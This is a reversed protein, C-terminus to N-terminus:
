EMPRWGVTGVVYQGMVMQACQSNPFSIALGVLDRARPDDPNEYLSTRSGARMDRGSSKSIPYLTLLGQEAPRVQRAAPNRGLNNERQLVRAKELQEENLGTEEDGPSTIVGISNPDSSLRTRSIQYIRGGSIGWDVEGLNRDFSERGKVAVTWNILEDLEVQREIYNCVLPLSINRAETDVRYHALFELIAQAGIHTWVPGEREWRAPQGISSLFDRTAILNEELLVSLDDPHRFPFKITQLIKGSYSQEIIISSAFRQKLRNTVLMAPHRLIRTGLQMPTVSQAEYIRIDERLSHEVLALDSFWGSLEITTWIRTLDEYGGRFGFWRGMQMLTDYMASRRIFYSVLLGELTLGRSLRNGGVAIAKLGPEREYDLVAGTASNVERVQVSEFFPGIHEEIQEFPVDRNIHSARTVSRFESEWRERLREHIRHQRHYRWEDRIEAFLTEIQTALRNQEIIRSTTHILMTAPLQGQGRQARAAGALVFDLLAVELTSPLRGELSAQVDEDPVERVIALGGVDDGSVPDLRGFLAEAGFYGDPMPLDVIFDKPYLDNGVRPDVTDHPILINAFPTATYAIYACRQFKRLLDRILGNIVAPEEYEPPLPEEESQYSGRTDVSAQDAEDDIVLMPLTCRVSEPALDLWTHLRRLVSGNKKVVLLVPQTGQLAAYNAFGPRFDGNIDETTFLHWQLGTPPLRVVGARHDAYGILERNLRMQTQRRLSNDVGSLVIVLRYGVDAAKAIVATFNSTKGSQVFGLVLGRVDFQETQPPALQGLIRDTVEDLSRVTAASLGKVGLLYERLTPWYHWGSRDINRLWEDRRPDAVLMRAPELMINEEQVLMERIQQRFAGPIAPNDIAVERSVGRDIMLRVIGMAEELIM